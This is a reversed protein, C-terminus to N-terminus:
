AMFWFICGVAVHVCLHHLQIFGSALDKPDFYDQFHEFVMGFPGCTSLHYMRLFTSSFSDMSIELKSGRLFDLLSDSYPSNTDLPHLTLLVNITKSSALTPTLPALANAVHVFEQCARPNFKHTSAMFTFNLDVLTLSVDVVLSLTTM